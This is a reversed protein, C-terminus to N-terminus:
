CRVDTPAYDKEQFKFQSISAHMQLVYTNLNFKIGITDEIKAHLIRINLRQLNTICNSNSAIQISSKYNGIEVEMTDPFIGPQTFNIAM